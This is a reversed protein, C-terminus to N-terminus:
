VKKSIVANEFTSECNVTSEFLKWFNDKSFKTIEFIIDSPLRFVTWARYWERWMEFIRARGKM